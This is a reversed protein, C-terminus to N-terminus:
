AYDHISWNFDAPITATIGDLRAWRPPQLTGTGRVGNAAFDLAEARKAHGHALFAPNLDRVLVHHPESKSVFVFWFEEVDLGLGKAVTLYHAASLHYLHNFTAEALKEDTMRTSTSKLDIVAGPIRRDFRAKHQVGNEDAWFASEEYSGEGAHLLLAADAHRHVAEAMRHAKDWDEQSVVERGDKKAEALAAKWAATTTPNVAPSGDKLVGIKKADLVVYDTALHEPELVVTHFFSGFRLATDDEPETYEPLMRKLASSSLWEADAHYDDNSIGPYVGPKDILTM